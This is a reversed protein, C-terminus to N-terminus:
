QYEKLYMYTDDTLEEASSISHKPDHIKEGILETIEEIEKESKLGELRYRVNMYIDGLSLYNFMTQISDVDYSAMILGTDLAEIAKDITGQSMFSEDRMLGEAVDYYDELLTNLASKPVVVYQEGEEPEYRDEKKIYDLM